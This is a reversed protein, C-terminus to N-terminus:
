DLIGIEFLLQFFGFIQNISLFSLFYKDSIRDEIKSISDKRSPLGFTYSVNQLSVSSLLPM